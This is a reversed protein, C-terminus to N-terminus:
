HRGPYVDFKKRAGIRYTEFDNNDITFITSVSEREALLVLTADAFDMPRDQYTKMLEHIRPMDVDTIAYVVIAGSNLFSWVARFHTPNDGLLHFVETLVASTTALPLKLNPFADVCRQHWSDEALLFAIIAGTDILGRARM